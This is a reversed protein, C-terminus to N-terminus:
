LSDLDLWHQTLWSLEDKFRSVKKRKEEFCYRQIWWTVEICWSLRLAYIASAFDLSLYQSYGNVFAIIRGKDIQNNHLTFSLLARGIDQWIYGYRNTDFDIIASVEERDFLVNDAAFDKHTIGKPLNIFFDDSLKELIPKQLSVARVFEKNESSVAEEITTYYNKWLSNTTNGPDFTMGSVPIQAFCKHMQGCAKGLNYMQPISVSEYDRLEGRKYEMVMYATDDNLIQVIKSKHMRILPCPVGAKEIFVQRQLAEEVAKLKEANYRKCSFKKILFKGKNTHIKWKENLYGGSVPIAEDFVIEFTEELDKRLLDDM